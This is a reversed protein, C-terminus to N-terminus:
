AKKADRHAERLFASCARAYARMALEADDPFIGDILLAVEAPSLSVHYRHSPGAIEVMITKTAADWRIPRWVGPMSKALDHDAV